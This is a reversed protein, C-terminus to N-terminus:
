TNTSSALREALTGEQAVVEAYRGAVYALPKQLSVEMEQVEGLLITHDGGAIRRVTRCEMYAYSGTLVPCGHGSERFTFPPEEKAGDSAFFRAEPTQESALFNMVFHQQKLIPNHSRAKKAVCVLVLLPDLSVSSVANATLGHIRGDKRRFTVVTVGTPFNGWIQRFRFRQESVASPLGGGGQQAM